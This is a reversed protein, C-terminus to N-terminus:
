ETDVPLPQGNAMQGQKEPYGCGCYEQRYLGYEKSLQISRLYGNRKKFDSPLWKVGYKQGLGEGIQNILPANKHPSVTLTTGFYDFSAEAAQKATEELRLQFCVTCRAGGEPLSEMGRVAQEFVPGQWDQERLTPPHEMPMASLLQKLTAFRRDYEAEPRINPNYFLLTVDFYQTIYELVYSSCPGCCSQLLLRPRGDLGAIVEDLDKQYNRNAM